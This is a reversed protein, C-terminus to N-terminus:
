QSPSVEMSRTDPPPPEGGAPTGLSDGESTAPPPPQDSSDEKLKMSYEQGETFNKQTGDPELIQVAGKKVSVTGETEGCGLSVSSGGGVSGESGLCSLKLADGQGTSLAVKGAFVEVSSGSPIDPLPEGADIMQVKGDPFTVLLTGQFDPQVTIKAHALSPILLAILLIVTLIIQKSGYSM